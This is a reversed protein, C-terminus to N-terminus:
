DFPHADHGFKASRQTLALDILQGIDAVFLRVLLSVEVDNVALRRGEKSGTAFQRCPRRPGVVCHHLRCFGKAAVETDAELYAVIDEIIEIIGGDSFRGAVVHGLALEGQRGEVHQLRGVIRGEM